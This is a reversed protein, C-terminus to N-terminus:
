RAQSQAPVAAPTATRGPAVQLALIKTRTAAVAQDFQARDQLSLALGEHVVRNRITALFHLKRALAPELHGAISNTKAHLGRGAAGRQELLQELQQTARVVFVLDSRMYEKAM